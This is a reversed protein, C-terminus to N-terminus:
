ALKIRYKSYKTEIDSTSIYEMWFFLIMNLLQIEKVTRPQLMKECSGQKVYGQCTKFSLDKQLYKYFSWLSVNENQWKLPVYQWQSMDKNSNTHAGPQPCMKKFKYTNETICFETIKVFSGQWRYWWLWRKSLKLKRSYKM